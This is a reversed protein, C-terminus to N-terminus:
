RIHRTEPLNQFHRKFKAGLIGYLEVPQTGEARGLTDLSFLPVESLVNSAQGRMGSQGIDYLYEAGATAPCFPIFPSFPVIELRVQSVAASVQLHDPILHEIFAIGSRLQQLCRQETGERLWHKNRPKLFTFWM